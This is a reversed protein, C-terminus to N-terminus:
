PGPVAPERPMCRCAPMAFIGQMGNDRSILKSNKKYCYIWLLGASRVPSPGAPLGQVASASIIILRM